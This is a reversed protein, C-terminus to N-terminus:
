QQAASILKMVGISITANGLGVTTGDYSGTVEFRAVKFYNASNAQDESVYVAYSSELPALRQTYYDITVGTPAAIVTSDLSITTLDCNSAGIACNLFGVNGAVVFFDENWPSSYVCYFLSCSM